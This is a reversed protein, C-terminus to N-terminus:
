SFRKIKQKGKALRIKKTLHAATATHFLLM